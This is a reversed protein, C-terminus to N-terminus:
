LSVFLKIQSGRKKYWWGGIGMGQCKDGREHQGSKM